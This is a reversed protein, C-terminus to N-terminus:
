PVQTEVVDFSAIIEDESWTVQFGNGAFVVTCYNMCYDAITITAIVVCFDGAGERDWYDHYTPKLRLLTGVSFVNPIAKRM